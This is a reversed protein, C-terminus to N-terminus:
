ELEIIYTSGIFDDEYLEEYVLQLDGSRETPVVFYLTGTYDEGIELYFEEGYIDAALDDAYSPTEMEDEGEGWRIYFDAYGMPITETFCNEVTVEVCVFEYGEDVYYDGVEAAFDVDEVTSIFFTNKQAEGIENIITNGYDRGGAEIFTSVNDLSEKSCGTLSLAAAAALTMAIIKKM